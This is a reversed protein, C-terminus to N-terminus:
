FLFITRRSVMKVLGDDGVLDENGRGKPQFLLFTSSWGAYEKTKYNEVIKFPGGTVPAYKPGVVKKKEEKEKKEKKQFEVKEEEPKRLGPKVSTEPTPPPESVKGSLYKKIWGPFIVVPMRLVNFLAADGPQEVREGKVRAELNSQAQIYLKKYVNEFLFNSLRTSGVHEGHERGSFELVIAMDGLYKKIKSECEEGVNHM